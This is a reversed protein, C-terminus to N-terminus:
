FSFGEFSKKFSLRVPREGFKESKKTGQSEILAVSKSKLTRDLLQNLLRIEEENLDAQRCFLRFM